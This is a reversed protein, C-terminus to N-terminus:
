LVIIGKVRTDGDSIATALLTVDFTNPEALVIGDSVKSAEPTIEVAEFVAMCILVASITFPATVSAFIVATALVFIVPLMMLECIAEFMVNFPLVVTVVKTAPAPDLVAGAIVVAPSVLVPM